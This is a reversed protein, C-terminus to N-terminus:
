TEERVCGTMPVFRVSSLIEREFQEGDRVIRLLQQSNRKGVPIVLRGQPAVLALLHPPVHEPAATVLIADFPEFAVNGGDGDHVTVERYGTRALNERAMAALEPVIEITDV